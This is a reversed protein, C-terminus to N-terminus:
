IQHWFWVSTSSLKLLLALWDWSNGPPYFDPDSLHLWKKDVSHLCINSGNTVCCSGTPSQRSPATTSYVSAHHGNGWPCRLRRVLVMVDELFCVKFRKLLNEPGKWGYCSKLAPNYGPQIQKFLDHLRKTNQSEVQLHVSASSLQNFTM